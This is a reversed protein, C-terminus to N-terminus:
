EHDFAGAEELDKMTALAESIYGDNPYSTLGIQFMGTCNYWMLTYHRLVPGVVDDGSRDINKDVCADIISDVVYMQRDKKDRLAYLLRGNERKILVPLVDAKVGYVEEKVYPEEIDAGTIMGSEDNLEYAEGEDPLEGALEMLCAKIKNDLESVVTQLYWYRSKPVIVYMGNVRSVVIGDKKYAKKILSCITKPVVFM